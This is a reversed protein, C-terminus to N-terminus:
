GLAPPNRIDSPFCNECVAFFPVGADAVMLRSARWINQSPVTVAATGIFFGGIIGDVWEQGGNEATASCRGGLHKMMEQIFWSQGSGLARIYISEPISLHNLREPQKSSMWFVHTQNGSSM